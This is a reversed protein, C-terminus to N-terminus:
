VVSLIERSDLNHTIIRLAKRLLLISHCDRAVRVKREPKLTKTISQLHMAYIFVRKRVSGYEMNLSSGVVWEGM